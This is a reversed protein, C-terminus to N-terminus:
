SRASAKRSSRWASAAIQRLDRNPKGDFAEPVINGPLKLCSWSAIVAESRGAQPPAGQYCSGPFYLQQLRESYSPTSLEAKSRKLRAQCPSDDSCASSMESDSADGVPLRILPSDTVMTTTTM